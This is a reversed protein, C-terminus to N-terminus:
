EEDIDLDDFLSEEEFMSEIFSEDNDQLDIDDDDIELNMDKLENELSSTLNQM